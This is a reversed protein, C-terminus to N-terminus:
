VAPELKQVGLATLLLRQSILVVSVTFRERAGSLQGPKFMPEDFDGNKLTMAYSLRNCSEVLEPTEFTLSLHHHAFQNRMEALVLLDQYLAKSVLGLVYCADARSSFSGLSGSRADLVKSSVSSQIFRRNLLAALCADVYAASIVVVSFDPENNLVDFFAQTDGSLAEAPLISRKAM